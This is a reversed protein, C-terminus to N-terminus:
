THESIGAPANTATLFKYGNSIVGKSKGISKLVRKWWTLMKLPLLTRIGQNEEQKGRLDLSQIYWLKALFNQKKEGACTITKHTKGM